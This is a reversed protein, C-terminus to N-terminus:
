QILSTIDEHCDNSLYSLARFRLGVLQDYLPNLKCMPPIHVVKHGFLTVDREFPCQSPILKCMFRAVRPDHMELGDLWGRVPALVDVSHGEPHGELYNEPPSQPHPQRSDIIEDTQLYITHELSKLVEPELGLADAFRHLIQAESHTYVGDAIAVMVATRMFNDAAATHKGLLQAIEEPSIPALSCSNKGYQMQELTFEAILEQEQPDFDGDSWAIALLGQLWAEIQEDTYTPLSPLDIRTM